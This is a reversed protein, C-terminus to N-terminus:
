NTSESEKETRRNEESEKSNAHAVMRRSIHLAYGFQPYVNDIITFNVSDFDALYYWGVKGDVLYMVYAIADEHRVDLIIMDLQESANSKLVDGARVKM